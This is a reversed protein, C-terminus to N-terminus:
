GRLFTSGSVRRHRGGPCLPGENFRRGSQQYQTRTEVKPACTQSLASTHLQQTNQTQHHRGNQRSRPRASRSRRRLRRTTQCRRVRRGRRSGCRRSLRRTRSRVLRRWRGSGARGCGRRRTSRTAEPASSGPTMLTSMPPSRMPVTSTMLSRQNSQTVMVAPVAVRSAPVDTMRSVHASPAFMLRSQSSMRGVVGGGTGFRCCWLRM